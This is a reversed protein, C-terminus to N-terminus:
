KTNAASGKEGQAKRILEQQQHLAMELNQITAINAELVVALTREKSVNHTLEKLHRAPEAPWKVLPVRNVQCAAPALPAEPPKVVSVCGALMLMGIAIAFRRM